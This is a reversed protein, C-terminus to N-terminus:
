RKDTMKISILGNGSFLSLNRIFGEVLNTCLDWASNNYNSDINQNM